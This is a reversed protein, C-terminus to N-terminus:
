GVARAYVALLADTAHDWAWERQAKARAAAGLRRRLEVDGLLRELAARLAPVDRPPVLLGTEDDDVADLLGGVATAVVARGHAMAERATMGYGERRSPVAVVAARAYYDGIEAPAVVGLGEPVAIPGVGVIVRPLADTAAVFEAIGKEASLRGAYLVHPPESPNPVNPPITVGTPVIEVAAAGLQRAADALANSAAVVVAARRLVPRALWPVRRALEIDTGWVQVVYPRRLTSAVAGALLWHAHVVDADIRAAARRLRWLFVPLLLALWPRARLNGVMGHGYALGFHRVLAPSVVEVDVGRSRAHAVADAVFRGAPDAPGRPYSTTLM